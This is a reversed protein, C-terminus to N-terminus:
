GGTLIYRGSMRVTYTKLPTRLDYMPEIESTDWTEDKLSWEAQKRRYDDGVIRGTLYAALHVGDHLEFNPQYGFLTDFFEERAYSSMAWVNDVVDQKLLREVREALEGSIVRTARFNQEYTRYTVGSLATRIYTKDVPKIHISTKKMRHVVYGHGAVLLAYVRAVMGNDIAGTEDFKWGGVILIDRGVLDKVVGTTEEWKGHGNTKIIPLRHDASFRLTGYNSSTSMAPLCWTTVEEIPTWELSGDYARGLTEDNPQIDTYEVWGRRTLIPSAVPVAM